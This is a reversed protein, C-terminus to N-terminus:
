CPYERTHIFSHYGQKKAYEIALSNYHRIQSSLKENGSFDEIQLRLEKQLTKIGISRGHSHWHANNGLQRAIERARETKEDQTVLKGSSTHKQWDKFKYQVLWKELLTITLNRAQQYFNLDALNLNLAMQLEVPSVTGEASRAIISEFQDLYGQASVFKDGSLVQPDIPGLSSSYDMFIKDGSMCLITGASYAYDYVIFHVEDYFHRMIDVFVEVTEASGGTTTINFALTNHKKKRALGEMSGIFFDKIGPTLPGYYLFVDAGLSNELLIAARALQKYVLKDLPLPM